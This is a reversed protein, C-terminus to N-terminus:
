AEAMHRITTGDYGKQAFCYLAAELIKNEQSPRPM